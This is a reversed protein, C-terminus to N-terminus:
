LQERGKFFENLVGVLNSANLLYPAIYIKDPLEFSSICVVWGKDILYNILEVLTKEPLGFVAEWMKQLHEPQTLDHICKIVALEPWLGKFVREPKNEPM